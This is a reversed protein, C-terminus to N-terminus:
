QSSPVCPMFYSAFSTGASMASSALCHRSFITSVAASADSSSM